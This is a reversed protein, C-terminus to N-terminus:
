SVDESGFFQGDIICAQALRELRPQEAYRFKVGWRSGDCLLEEFNGTFRTEPYLAAQKLRRPRDLDCGYKLRVHPLSSLVRMLNPGWYGLGVVGVDLMKAVRGKQDEQQM